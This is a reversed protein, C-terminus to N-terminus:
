SAVTVALSPAEHEGRPEFDSAYFSYLSKHTCDFEYFKNMSWKVHDFKGLRLNHLHSGNLDRLWIGTYDDIM